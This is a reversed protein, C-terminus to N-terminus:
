RIILFMNKMVSCGRAHNAWFQDSLPGVEDKPAVHWMDNMGAM